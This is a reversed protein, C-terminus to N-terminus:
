IRLTAAAGFQPSLAGEGAAMRQANVVALTLVIVGMGQHALALPLAAQALLTLIGLMAQLTV